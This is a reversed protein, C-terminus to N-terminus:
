LDYRYTRRTNKIKCVVQTVKEIDHIQGDYMAREPHSMIEYDLVRYGDAELVSVVGVVTRTGIDLSFLPDIM